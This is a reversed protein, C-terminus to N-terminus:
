FLLALRKEIEAQVKSIIFCENKAEIKKIEKLLGRSPPWSKNPFFSFM